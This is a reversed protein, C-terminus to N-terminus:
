NSALDGVNIKRLDDNTVGLSLFRMIQYAEDGNGLYYRKGDYIYWAEGNGEVQLVIRGELRSGFSTDRVGPGAGLPDYGNRVELGDTFSDGDTDPNFPDTGIAEELKDSLGDGDSDVGDFREDYGLPIQALDENSIGLGFAQLAAHASQGDRLYYKKASVSDVYWAEGNGEVQLLIRGAVRNVLAEDVAQVLKKETEILQSELESVRYELKAIREQLKQEESSMPKQQLTNSDKEGTNDSATSSTQFRAIQTSFFRGTSSEGELKFYYTIGPQLQELRVSHNTTSGDTRQSFTLDQFQDGTGYLVISTTPISTKWSVVAFTEGPRIIIDSVVPTEQNDSSSSTIFGFTSSEAKLENSAADRCVIMVFYKTDPSLGNLVVSRDRNIVSLTKPISPDILDGQLNSTTGYAVTCNVTPDTLFSVQASSSSLVSIEVDKIEVEGEIQSSNKYFEATVSEDKDMTVLCTATGPTGPCDGGRFSGFSSYVGSEVFLTVRTGVPYQVSCRTNAGAFGCDIGAPDSVVRGFGNGVQSVTLTYLEDTFGMFDAGIQVGTFTLECVPGVVGTCSGRWSKFRHGSDAIAELRLSSGVPLNYTCALSACDNLREGDVSVLIRGGASASLELVETRVTGEPAFVAVVEHDRDMVHNCTPTDVFVSCDGEWKLFIHGPKPVATFSQVTDQSFGYTCEDLCASFGDVNVQGEGRVVIHAQHFEALSFTYLRRLANQGPEMIFLAINTVVYPGEIARPLLEHGEPLDFTAVQANSSGYAALQNSSSNKGAYVFEGDGSVAIPNPGFALSGARNFNSTNIIEVRNDVTGTGGLYIKGAGPNLHLDVGFGGFSNDFERITPNVPDSLNFQYLTGPNHRTHLVLLTGSATDMELVEDGYMVTPDNVPSPLTVRTVSSLLPNSSDLKILVPTFNGGNFRSVSVYAINKADDVAIDFSKVGIEINGVKQFTSLRFVEISNTSRSSVLLFDKYIEIDEAMGQLQINETHLHNQNKDFVYINTRVSDAVFLHSSTEAMAVLSLTDDAQASAIGAFGVFSVLVSVFFLLIKKM